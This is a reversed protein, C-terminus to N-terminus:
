GRNVYANDNTPDIAIARDLAQRAEDYQGNLFLEHGHRVLQASAPNYPRGGYTYDVATGTKSDYVVHVTRAGPGGSWLWMGVAVVISGIFAHTALQESRM